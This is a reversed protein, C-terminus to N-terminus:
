KSLEKKHSGSIVNSTETIVTAANDTAKFTKVINNVGGSLAGLAGRFVVETPNINTAADLLESGGSSLTVEPSTTDLNDGDFNGITQTAIKWKSSKRWISDTAGKWFTKQAM